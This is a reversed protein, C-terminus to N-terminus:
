KLKSETSSLKSKLAQIKAEYHTKMDSLKENLIKMVSEDLVETPEFYDVRYVDTEKNKKKQFLAERLHIIEKLLKGRM